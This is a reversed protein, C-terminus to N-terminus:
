PRREVGLFCFGFEGGEAFVQVVFFTEPSVFYDVLRVINNIDRCDKMISVERRVLDKDKSSLRSREIVKVAYNKKSAIHEAVFVTGYSGKALRQKVEYYDAFKLKEGNAERLSIGTVDGQMM